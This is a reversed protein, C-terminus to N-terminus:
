TQTSTIELTGLTPTLIKANENTHIGRGADARANSVSEQITNKVNIAPENITNRANMTPEYQPLAYSKKLRLYQSYKVPSLNVIWKLLSERNGM